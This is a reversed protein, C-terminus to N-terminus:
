SGGHHAHVVAHGRGRSILWRNIPFAFAGAILLAAALSVWFLPSTLPAELEHGISAEALMPVAAVLPPINKLTSYLRHDGM